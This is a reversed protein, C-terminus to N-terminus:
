HLVLIKMRNLEMDYSTIKNSRLFNLTKKYSFKLNVKGSYPLGSTYSRKNYRGFDVRIDSFWNIAADAFSNEKAGNLNHRGPDSENIM